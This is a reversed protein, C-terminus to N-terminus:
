APLELVEIMTRKWGSAEVFKCHLTTENDLYIRSLCAGFADFDTQVGNHILITRDVARGEITTTGDTVGDCLVQSHIVKKKLGSFEVIIYGFTCAHVNGGRVVFITTNNSWGLRGFVSRFDVGGPAQGTYILLSYDRDVAAITHYKETETTLVISGSQLSKISVGVGVYFEKIYEGLFNNYWPCASSLPDLNHYYVKQGETLLHASVIADKFVDRLLGQAETESIPNKTKKRVYSYGFRTYYTILDNVTGSALFSQLPYRLRVM